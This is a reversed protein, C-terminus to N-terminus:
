CNYNFLGKKAKMDKISLSVLWGWFTLQEHRWHHNRKESIYINNKKNGHMSDIKSKKNGSNNLIKLVMSNKQVRKHNSEKKLSSNHYFAINPIKHQYIDGTVEMFFFFFDGSSLM